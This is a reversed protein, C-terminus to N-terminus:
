EQLKKLKGALQAMVPRYKILWEEIDSRLKGNNEKLMKEFGEDNLRFKKKIEAKDQDNLVIPEAVPKEEEVEVKVEVPKVGVPKLNQSLAGILRNIEDLKKNDRCVWRIFRGIFTHKEKYEVLGKKAAELSDLADKMSAETKIQVPNSAEYYAIEGIQVKGKFIAEGAHVNIRDTIFSM